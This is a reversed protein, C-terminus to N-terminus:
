PSQEWTLSAGMIRALDAERRAYFSEYFRRIHSQYSMHLERCNFAEGLDMLRAHATHVAVQSRHFAATDDRLEALVKAAAPSRASAFNPIAILIVLLALNLNKM